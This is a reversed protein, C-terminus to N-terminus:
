KRTASIAKDIGKIDLDVAVPGAPTYATLTAKPNALAERVFADDIPAEAVCQRPGCSIYNLRRAAANGFKLDLGNGILIPGAVVQNDKKVPLASPVHVATVYHDEQNLGIQWTLLVKRNQNMVRLSALCNRKATGGENEQCTVVWSDYVTTEVRRPGPPAAPSAPAAAPVQRAPAAPGAPTRRLQSERVPLSDPGKGLGEAKALGDTAAEPRNSGLPGLLVAAGIALLAGCAAIGVWYLVRM